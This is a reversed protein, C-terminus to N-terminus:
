RSTKFYDIIEKYVHDVEIKDICNGERSECKDGLCPVCDLKPYPLIANGRGYFDVEESPTPAFLGYVQKGLAIALHMGLSDSSVMARSSNVWDIYKHLDTLVLPDQRDQRTVRFGESKLRQELTDWRTPSWSKNPWKKGVLTNLAVDYQEQSIPRYGLSYEEGKWEEGILRFLLDQFRLKNTKKLATDHSVALVEAARDYAKVQGTQADIRFGQKKWADIERAFLCIGRNKELNVVTDFTEGLLELARLSNLKVIEAIHPNGELLPMAHSDTLWTVQDGRAAYRPLLVTTRFVDGLSVNETQADGYLFESYGTKIILVKEM